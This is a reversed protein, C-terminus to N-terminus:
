FINSSSINILFYCVIEEFIEPFKGKKKALDATNYIWVMCYIIIPYVLEYRYGRLVDQSKPLIETGFAINVFYKFSFHQDSDM